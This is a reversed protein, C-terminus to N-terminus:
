VQLHRRSLRERVTIGAYVIASILAPYRQQLHKRYFIRMADYFARHARLRTEISSASRAASRVKIGSSMGKLHTISVQPHYVIRWGAQKIRFAWDIDEGYLFFQEDLAGVQNIVERRVLFFCGSPSDIEHTTDLDRFTLHYQGFLRSAPLIRDLGLYYTLSAWPTPFGRHCAEDLRGDGLVVRCTAAGVEPHADMFTLMEALTGARVTTDPNLLLVYQCRALRIGINNGAAFGSNREADIFRVHPHEIALQRRAFQAYANNVLVVEVLGADLDARLSELCPRVIDAPGYSLIIVSASPHERMM